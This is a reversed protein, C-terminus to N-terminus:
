ARVEGFGDWFVLWASGVCHLPFVFVLIM